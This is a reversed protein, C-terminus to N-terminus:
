FWEEFEPCYDLINVGRLKDKKKIYEIFETKEEETYPQMMEQIYSIANVVSSHSLIEKVHEKVSDPFM